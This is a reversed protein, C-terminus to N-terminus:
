GGEEKEEEKEETVQAIVRNKRRLKEKLFEEVKRKENNHAREVRGGEREEGENESFGHTESTEKKWDRVSLASRTM